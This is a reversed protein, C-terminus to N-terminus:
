VCNDLTKGFLRVSSLLPHALARLLINRERLVREVVLFSDVPNIQHNGVILLPRDQPIADLGKLIRNM